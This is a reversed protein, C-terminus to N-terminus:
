GLPDRRDSPRKSLGRPDAPRRSPRTAPDRSAILLVITAAVAIGVWWVRRHPDGPGSMFLTINLAPQAILAGVGLLVIAPAVLNGPEPEGRRAAVAAAAVAVSVLAAVEITLASTSPTPSQQNLLVVIVTWAAGVVALGAFLTPARRRWLRQPTAATVAIAADDLLYAAGSALAVAALHVVFLPVASSPRAISLLAVLGASMVALLVMPWPTQLLM